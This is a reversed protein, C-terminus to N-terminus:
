FRSCAPDEKGSMDVETPDVERALMERKYVGENAASKSSTGRVLSFGSALSPAITLPQTLLALVFQALLPPHSKKM